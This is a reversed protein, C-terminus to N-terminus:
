RKVWERIKRERREEVNKIWTGLAPGRGAEDIGM